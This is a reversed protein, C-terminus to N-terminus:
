NNCINKKKLKPILSYAEISTVKKCESCNDFYSFFKFYNRYAKENNEEKFFVVM